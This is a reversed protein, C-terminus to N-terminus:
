PREEDYLASTSSTTIDSVTNRDTTSAPIHGSERFSYFGSAAIVIHDVLRIGLLGGAESLRRTLQHDDASPTPDGSPHNHAVIVATAQQVVAPRFVEATRVPAENATGQYVLHNGLLGHRTSLTLTRLQEQSLAAMEPSLLDYVTQPKDIRVGAEHRALLPAVEAAALSALVARALSALEPESLGNLREIQRPAVDRDAIRPTTTASEEIGFGLQAPSSPPALQPFMLQASDPVDRKTVVLEGEALQLEFLGLLAHTAGSALLWQTLTAEAQEIRETLAEQRARGHYLSRAASLLHQNYPRDREM